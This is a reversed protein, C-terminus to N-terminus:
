HKVMYSGLGRCLKGDATIGEVVIQVNGTEDSNFFSVQAVGTSDTRVIPNWYITNRYDNLVTPQKTTEYRPSYFKRIPSYGIIKASKMGVKDTPMNIFKEGRKTYFFLIGSDSNIGAFIGMRVLEIKDFAEAPFTKLLDYDAPIGDLYIMLPKSRYVFMEEAEEHRVGPFRGEIADYVNGVDLKQQKNMDFVFDAENYIRFHGDDSAKKQATVYIEELLITDSLKWKRNIIDEQSKSLYTLAEVQKDEKFEYFVPLFNVEPSVISSRDLQIITNRNGKKNLAQISVQLTDYFFLNPITFLGMSDTTAEYVGLLSKVTMMTVKCDELPKETLMSVVRGKFEISSEPQYLIEPTEDSLIEEWEFYRYGHTLM